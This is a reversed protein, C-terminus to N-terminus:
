CRADQGPEGFCAAHFAPVLPAGQGGAAVDRSRFDCVVDIGAASPWCRATSCSCRTAPRRLGRGTACPRATRASRGARGLRRGRFGAAAAVVEAYVDAMLRMPRWAARHLEDPGPNLALLERAPRRSPRHVHALVRPWRASARGARRRRRRALHGVDARHVAGARWPGAGGRGRPRSPPASVGRSREAVCSPRCVTPGAACVAAASAAPQVTESAKAIPAPGPARRPRPVRLAPAARDGLRHLRRRRHQRGPRRAPGQARRHPEPACLAHQPRQRPPDRRRQRLREALRRIRRATASPACRRAPPRATTSAWTRRWSKLIPHFRMAFGSTVRSFEMPSALFARRKSQGDPRLLRRPRGARRVVRGPAHAPTSSSPLWCAAPAKTGPCRSAM